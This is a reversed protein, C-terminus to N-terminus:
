IILLIKLPSRGKSGWIGIATESASLRWLHPNVFPSVDTEGKSILSYLKRGRGHRCAIRKQVTLAHSPAPPPCWLVGGFSLRSWPTPQVLGPCPPLRSWPTPQVRGSCHLYFPITFLSSPLLLFRCAGQPTQRNKPLTSM